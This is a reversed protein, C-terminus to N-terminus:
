KAFILLLEDLSSRPFRSIKRSISNWPLLSLVGKVNYRDTVPTQKWQIDFKVVALRPRKM